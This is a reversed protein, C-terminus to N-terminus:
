VLLVRLDDGHRSLEVLLIELVRAWVVPGVAGSLLGPDIGPFQLALSM